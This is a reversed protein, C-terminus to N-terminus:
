LRAGPTLSPRSELFASILPAVTEPSNLHVHHDGPVEVIRCERLNDRYGQLLASTVAEQQPKQIYRKCFGDEALILLVRAQIRSQLELAQDLTARVVNTMNIRFDRSFVVGGEVPTSGREMLIRASQESLSPNATLLRKLASDYSYVKESRKEKDFQLQEEIGKRVATAMEEMETPLFGLADLIVFSDVMEPFVASFLGAVNSGMSHGIVSFRKWELAEIVRRMDAVYAPFTYLVGAPRHTSLGHGPFDIAVCRCDAPLLPILRDFSGANDSWGHLCLVPRGDRPGWDKAAIHGWPVPFQVERCPVAHKMSSVSTSLRRVAQLM